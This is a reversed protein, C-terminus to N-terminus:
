GLKSCYDTAMKLHEIDNDKEHEECKKKLGIYKCGVKNYKCEHIKLDCIKIHEDYDKLFGKWECNYPCKLKLKLLTRYIMKNSTKIERLYNDNPKMEKSCLPCKEKTRLWRLICSNCLLHGCCITEYCENPNPINQCIICSYDLINKDEFLSPDLTPNILSTEEIKKIM